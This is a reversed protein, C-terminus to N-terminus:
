QVLRRIVVVQNTNLSLKLMLTSVSQKFNAKPKQFIGDPWLQIIKWADASNVPGVNINHLTVIAKTMLKVHFDAFTLIIYVTFSITVISGEPFESFDSGWIPNSGVVKSVM